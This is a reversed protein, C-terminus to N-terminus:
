VVEVIFLGLIQHVLDLCFLRTLFLGFNLLGWLDLVADPMRLLLALVETLVILDRDAGLADNVVMLPM